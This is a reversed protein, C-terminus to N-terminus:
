NKLTDITVGGDNVLATTEGQDSLDGEYNGQVFWGEGGTPSTTRKRWAAVNPSVFLNGGAVIVTGPAFDYQIGGTLSWGSLDVAFPNPNVLELYAEDSNGSIPDNEHSGFLVSVNESQAEPIGVAGRMHYDTLYPYRRDLYETKIRQNEVSLSLDRSGFHASTGWLSRDVAVDTELLAVLADIRDYCYSTGLFQDTLSRLRRLFMQQTDPNAIIRDMLVNIKNGSLPFARSGLFPHAANPNRAGASNEDAIITDTNLADPGFTLDLDWPMMHWEGSGTTDQYLYYNKDTADINQTVVVTAMFNIQAPLNVHDFLFSRLAAGSLRLGNVFSQLGANNEHKRTKKEFGNTSVM